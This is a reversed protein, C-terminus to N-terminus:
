NTLRLREQRVAFTVLQQDRTDWGDKYRAADINYLVRGVASDTQSVDFDEYSQRTAAKLMPYEHEHLEALTHVDLLISDLEGEDTLVFHAAFFSLARITAVESNAGIEEARKQAVRENEAEAIICNGDRLRLVYLSM